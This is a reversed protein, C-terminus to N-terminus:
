AVSWLEWSWTNGMVLAGWCGDSAQALSMLAAQGARFASENLVRSRRQYSNKPGSGLTTGPAKAVV